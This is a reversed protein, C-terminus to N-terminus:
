HIVAGKGEHVGSTGAYIGRMLVSIREQRAPSWKAYHKRAIAESISLIDAVDAMTGGRALIDTALTHRFQHPKADRIGAKRFVASLLEWARQRCGEKSGVGSWFFYGADVQSGDERMPLPLVDLAMKLERPIPLMVHGGTKQTYLRLQWGGRGDPRIRDSALTYADTVRLGSYRLLLVLALARRREYDSQGITESAALMAAVQQPTYPEVENGWERGMPLLAAYNKKVWGREHCFRFFQRLTSLEKIRTNHAIKRSARFKGLNEMDLEDVTEIGHRWCFARLYGILRMYKKRSTQKVDLEAEWAAIADTIQKSPPADPDELTALKRIARQWDRLKLSVRFQRGNRDGDAWIPCSCGTYNRGKKRHPCNKRHRRYLNM